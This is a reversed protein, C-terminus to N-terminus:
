EGSRGAENEDKSAGMTSYRNELLVCVLSGIVLGVGGKLQIDLVSCVGTYRLAVYVSRLIMYIGLFLLFLL